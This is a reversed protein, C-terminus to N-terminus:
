RDRLVQWTTKPKALELLRRGGKRGRAVLSRPLKPTISVSLRLSATRHHPRQARSEPGLTGEGESAGGDGPSNRHRFGPIARDERPM